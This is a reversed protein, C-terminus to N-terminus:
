FIKLGSIICSEFPEKACSFVQEEQNKRLTGYTKHLAFRFPLPDYTVYLM